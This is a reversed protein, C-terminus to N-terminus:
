REVLIGRKRYDCRSACPDALLWGPQQLGTQLRICRRLLRNLDPGQPDGLCRYQLRVDANRKTVKRGVMAQVYPSTQTATHRAVTAGWRSGESREEGAEGPDKFSIPHQKRLYAEQSLTVVKDKVSIM